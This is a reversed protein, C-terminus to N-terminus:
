INTYIVPVQEKQFEPHLIEKWEKEVLEFVSDCSTCWRQKDDKSYIHSTARACKPCQETERWKVM